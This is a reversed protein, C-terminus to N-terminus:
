RCYKAKSCCRKTQVKSTMECGRESKKGDFPCGCYEKTKLKIKKQLARHRNANQNQPNSYHQWHRAAKQAGDNDLDVADERDLQQLQLELDHLESQLYLLNRASLRTFKRYIAADIDKAIFEAFSPYGELRAPPSTSPNGLEVDRDRGASM